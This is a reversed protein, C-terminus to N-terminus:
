FLVSLLPKRFALSIWYDSNKLIRRLKIRWWHNWCSIYYVFRHKVELGMGALRRTVLLYFSLPSSFSSCFFLAQDTTHQYFLEQPHPSSATIWLMRWKLPTVRMGHGIEPGPHCWWVHLQSSICVNPERLIPHAEWCDVLHLEAQDQSVHGLEGLFQRWLSSFM